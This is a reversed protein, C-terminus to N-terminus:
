FFGHVVVFLGAYAGLFFGSLALIAASVLLPLRAMIKGMVIYIPFVVTVYRAQSNMAVEHGLTVYPIALLPVSLLTEYITLWRNWWGLGILLVAGIWYIPNFFQMSFLCSPSYNQGGKWYAPSTPNYAERIPEWSLLALLKDLMPIPNINEQTQAFALPQGFRIYQFLMFGLLGWCALPLAYILRRIARSKTGSTKWVHWALPLLLAIGVPRTATALGVIMAIIALPWNRSIGYISLIALSLFMTESYPMRFFFTMPLLGMALVAFNEMDSPEGPSQRRQRLYASMLLFAALCFGNSVILLSWVTSLGSIRHLWRATLPYAPFFAVNSFTKPDYSYGHEAVEQYNPGDARVLSELFHNGYYGEPVLYYFGFEAGIFTLATTIAWFVV